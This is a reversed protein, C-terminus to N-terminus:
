EVPESLTQRGADHGPTESAPAPLVWGGTLTLPATEGTRLPRASTVPLAEPLGEVAAMAEWAGGRYFVRELRATLPGDGLRVDGPRIVVSVPGPATPGATAVAVRQGALTAQGDAELTAPLVAARGIFRAVEETGPRDHLAQPTAVQQFRGRAMVAVRSALAMAERQDHTIYLTTAGARRHFAHIEEEMSARLHPDLNALPEDMLITRAGGALCRALAVRQRQGGSLEAPRRAAFEELAVTALHREADARAARRGGGASEIPFAVNDRVDMHPWLAYSQFVVGVNRAEPPVHTGPGAVPRGDLAVRGGDLTELGSIMRLLTSKGCGSPGLVVFFEGDEIEATVGDVAARDGFTKRIDTLSVAM